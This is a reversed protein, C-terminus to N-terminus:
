SGKTESRLDTFVLSCLFCGNTEAFVQFNLAQYIALYNIKIGGLECGLKYQFDFNMDAMREYCVLLLYAVIRTLINQFM